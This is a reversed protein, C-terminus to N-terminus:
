EASDDTRGIPLALLGLATEVLNVFAVADRMLDDAERTTVAGRMGAEAAARKNAGAAFYAAWPEMEPAVGVLLTWASTPRRAKMAAPRARDALVAAAARLGALHACAYRELPDAAAGAESLARRAAMLLRLAAPPAAGVPQERDSARVAVSRLLTATSM